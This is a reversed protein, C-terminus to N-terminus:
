KKHFFKRFVNRDKKPKEENEHEFTKTITTEWNEKKVKVDSISAGISDQSSHQLGVANKTAEESTTEPRLQFSPIRRPLLDKKTQKEPAEAKPSGWTRAQHMLSPSEQTKLIETQDKFDHQSDPDKGNQLAQVWVEMKQESPASFLYETGDNLRLCFTNPANSSDMVRECVADRISVPPVDMTNQSADKRDKYFSLTQGSLTVYYSGWSSKIVKQGGPLFKQQRELYGKVSQTVVSATNDFSFSPGLPKSSVDISNGHFDSLSKLVAKESDYSPVDNKSTLLIDSSSPEAMCSSSQRVMLKSPLPSILPKQTELSTAQMDILQPTTPSQLVTPIGDESPNKILSVTESPSRLSLSPSTSKRLSGQNQLKSLPAKRDSSKRKLSPVKIIMAQEKMGKEGTEIQKLMKKERKTKRELQSFKEEQVSLMKEFDEQKKLLGEVESISDGYDSDLLFGERARLWEEAQELNRRLVQIDLNEEYLEKRMEWSDSVRKMMETQESLKEEIEDFMFHKNEVLSKGAKQLGEYNLWQKDIERKYEEHRKILLEAGGIDNALEESMVLAHMEKAWIMLERCSNIFIQVQEAQSLREKREHSKKWLNGWAEEAEQLREAINKQVPPYLQSLYQAEKSIQEMEKRIAALDRELGEHQSLLTQLGLLDYGYDDTDAVAEKEQMWSRLKAVNHDFKHVQHAIALKEARRQIAQSLSDWMTTVEDVQKQIETPQSRSEKMLNSAVENIGHMKIYGLTEIEKVFDEFKKEIVEIDELDQGYDESEAVTQKSSLWAKVLEGERQLQYLQCQQRLQARRTESKELLSNYDELINQLKAIVTEREPNENEVLHKGAERLKLIRPMFSELDLKTSDMKRLLAQTADENKGYDSPELVFSREVIWSEAESLETLFQQAEYAQMLMKRRQRTEAKLTEMAAELQQLHDTIEKSAFHGGKMLKDGTDTVVEILACRGSIENELNQHKELLSQVAALSQGYDKSSALPLKEQVWALEDDLDRFFQYLLKKAELNARRKQLPESLSKYRHVTNEVRDAMEDALFHRGQQFECAKDTLAQFRDRQRTVDEELDTQKKLLNNVSVLDKGNVSTDLEFYVNDLWKETDEISRQFHLAKYADQLKSKKETCNQLLKKWMEEIELLRSQIVNPAYHEAQLMKQGETQISDLRNRNSMIEAEFTQHKQLKAQVNSPDRWSEDLAISSKENMWAAVEYCNRLFRQLLWSKELKKRRADANELLKKKRHLVSQCKRAINESDYHKNQRLQLAFSEMVNIKEMQAELAKEFLEHKQQLSEVSALSDGLDENALFAEKSSLWSENQESYGLFIQLDRAQALKLNQEQWVQILDTWAQELNSLSQQIEPAAYHGAAALKQGTSQLSNFRERRAEIEAKREHHEEMMTEVEATSKPLAGGETMERVKQAWDLLERRDSNFRQLQYSAELKEKRQKAEEQLQFWSDAMERQKTALQDNMMKNRRSLSNAGLKLAETRSQIIKIEREMEEHRRVLNAVSEVDKGYDLAQMLASKESIRELIDDIERIASHIELAEELKGRYVNLNGHFSNWRENLQQRRQAVTKMEDKNHRELKMALANITKIHADDVTVEGSGAGRFENLKRMLQLCHEYDKGVDGVNIMVEKERIWAEVQDVKQLFELFDRSDELMKGRAAVAHKLHEWHGQLGRSRRRIEASKPHSKALLAEGKETIATITEEHALIEAEFAQHKQLLKLKDQLESVDRHATDELQQTREGIWTEAEALNQSYLALLHATNLDECRAHALDRIRKRRELVSTLRHQIQVNEQRGKEEQLQFAQEQLAVVKEDQSALLKEFAEHRKILREVEDVSNGLESSKLSIEQSNLIKEMNGLDRYFVQELHVRELWEKKLEWEQYLQSREAALAQLREQIQTAPAKEELLLAQGRKEVMNYMEEKAEIKARLDQHGKLCQSSTSVGRITEKAKMERMMEATWSFYDRATTLFLYFNCTQELNVRRQEVKTKLSEWNVVVAQLKDQLVAVQSESCRHLLCDAADILEQLKQKNGVLEHELAQHKRLQSHVGSLDKAIDDPVAKRKEEIQTIAEALDWYYKHIAEADQLLKGRARTMELLNEWSNRLAKQKQRIEKSESHGRGLLSDALHQCAAVRQAATEVHHQFTNYKARLHLVHEYDNGYDKSSVVQQQQNIWEQLDRSERLFEHLCLTEDLKKRRTTAREQLDLLQAYIQDQPVDVEDYSVSGHTTLTQSTQGLEAMMKHCVEIEQEISKHKKILKLTAVEDKGYDNSSVLPLKEAVRNGLDSVDLLFQQFDVFNQLFLTRKECAKELDAWCLQLEQCKEDISPTAPHKSEILSKGKDWVRQVQQKHTNVESLLEKHKQLMSLAIDLSKSCSTSTAVPMRERIWNMEMDQYHYFQYQNVTAQLLEHRHALPVKLSEFRQLYKHTEEMIRQSDFHTSAMKKAHSVISSMKEALERAENELQWHEKLLDRSSRLDHGIEADQLVKEIKEIKGKADQLLEMLQEQQGAQRLKDGREMMKNNLEEWNRSLEVVTAQIADKAYHDEKILQNGVKKFEKFQVQNANMEKEAAEHWKLKRLINNPDRYSEDTAIQYKEEMWLRLETADCKFEQLRLSDLLNKKRQESREKLQKLGEQSDTLRQGILLSAFHRDQVLRSGQQGMLKVRHGLATLLREFGEHRKLLGRTTDLGDGLDNARLYVEHISLAMQVGDAERLFQQLQLGEELKKERQLWMQELDAQEDLLREMHEHVDGTSGHKSRSLKQGLEKLQNFRQKQSQIEKLLYQHEKLLQEASAVDCGSEESSLKEKINRVWLLHRRSEQLFAQQDQVEELDKRKCGAQERLLVLLKEMDEVQEKIAKSEKPNTDEISKAVNKLYTIKQELVQIEWESSAQKRRESELAMATNSSGLESNAVQELKDQLLLKTSQCAQLFTRVDAVGILEASKEEKLMELHDWRRNIERQYAQIEHQQSPGTKMFEDALHNIEELRGKGAALDTLFNEYKCQMVEVNDSKPEFTQLVKEKDEMWSQFETCSGYFRYLAIREELTKKRQESMTQLTEYSSVIDMQTKRINEPDFHPDQTPLSSFPRETNFHGTGSKQQPRSIGQIPSREIMFMKVEEAVLKPQIETLYRVPVNAKRGLEDKLQWMDPNTKEVLELIDGRNWMFSDGRYFLQLKVQPVQRKIVPMAMTEADPAKKLETNNLHRGEQRTAEEVSPLGTAGSRNEQLKAMHRAKQAAVTALEELRSMESSYADVEKELRLHRQLLAETSSEDKGYDESRLIHQREQLWSEAEDVDAFYQKILAAVQLLIKRNTVEEQLQEWQKQIRETQEQIDQQDWRNGRCLDQGKRVVTACIVQRSNCEAELARHKQISVTIQNLDRGVTATKVLQRKERLWSEEERCDRFFEFLKFNEELKTQRSKSLATLKQYLQNLTQVKAQLLESKIAKGKAETAQQSLSRVKEGHTSIQSEALSLKHLLDEVELLQKGYDQSSVLDQLEKLEEVITDIDQLLSLIGKTAGLLSSHRQVEKLLEEWHQSIEKQTQVLQFRNHYNEREIVAAMEALACFRQEQPLMDTKIAELKRVAVEVEDIDEPHFDQGRLVNKMDELYTERLAAKKQFSQALQELRELRLMELQLAKERSHEAKELIAWYKEIDGLARGEPPLYPRLNSAKLKTRIHFLHAEIMGREKYKPPKEETRFAKFNIMLQRMGQVSNPFHRDNLELVKQKIWMLLECVMWEYQRKLNDIELLLCMLNSVRKQITQGQRMKSFYHYYLSVYTMISKEDPHSVAVDEADLLKSIGLKQEAVSFANNLNQIPQKSRLSNYDILDPRHAHIIANFALGDRWSSSFDKVAVNSYSATKRQCWVLLAEKASLVATSQGFEDKDLTISSIQFRLIIIWILGLILTRDGDVINEPGILKVPVKTKLFTIAKSNNELFHVRMKGHSPRPLQEGSMLELLRLLYIGDKLDMYIDQIEIKKKDRSLMNNMWKTFTKKQMVMRQEQLNRIHGEDYETGMTILGEIQEIKTQIVKNNSLGDQVLKALENISKQMSFIMSGIEELTFKTPTILVIDQKAGVQVGELEKEKSAMILNVERVQDRLSQLDPDVPLCDFSSAGGQDSSILSTLDLKPEKFIFDAGGKRTPPEPTTPAGPSLSTELTLSSTGQEQGLDRAVQDGPISITRVFHDSIRPQSNNFLPTSTSIKGKRKTHPMVLFVLVVPHIAKQIVYFSISEQHSPEIRCELPVITHTIKGPLPDGHISSLTLPVPCPCTPIMFQDVIEQMLFNGGAGSDVLALTAFDGGRLTLTVPLTLPPVPITLGLIVGGIFGLGPLKIAAGSMPGLSTWAGWLVPLPRGTLMTSTRRYIIVGLGDSHTGVAPPMPRSGPSSPRLQTLTTPHQRSISLEQSKEQLRCDIWSALDILADLSVPLDRAALEDKIKSSLGELFIVRLVGGLPTRHIVDAEWLVTPSTEPHTNLRVYDDWQTQLYQHFQKDLMLGPPMRWSFPPKPSTGLTIGVLVPAHDSISITGITATVVRGRWM